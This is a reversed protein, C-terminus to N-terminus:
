LRAAADRARRTQGLCQPMQRNGPDLGEVGSVDGRAQRRFPRHRGPRRLPRAHDQHGSLRPRSRDIGRDASSVALCRLEPGAAGSLCFGRPLHCRAAPGEAAQCVHRRGRVGCGMGLLAPHRPLPWQRRRNGSGAGAQRWRRAVSQRPQRHRCQDAGSWLRRQREDGRRRQRIRSRRGPPVSRTRDRPVDLPLRCLRDRCYQPRIRYRRGDGRDHLAPRRSGLSSSASRRDSAAPDIVEETYQALWDERPDAYLGSKSAAATSTTM